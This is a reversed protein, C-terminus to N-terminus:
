EVETYIFLATHLSLEHNLAIEIVIKKLETSVFYGVTDQLLVLTWFYPWKPVVIAFFAMTANIPVATLLCGVILSSWNLGKMIM